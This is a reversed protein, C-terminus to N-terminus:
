DVWPLPTSPAAVRAPVPLPEISAVLALFTERATAVAKEDIGELRVSMAYPGQRFIAWDRWAIRSGSRVELAVLLGGPMALEHKRETVLGAEADHAVLTTVIAAAEQSTPVAPYVRIMTTGRPTMPAIWDTVLGRKIALWGKPAAYMVRRRRVGLGLTIGRAIARFAEVFADSEGRGELREHHHDGLIVAAARGPRLAMAGYEGEDTVLREIATAARAWRGLPPIGPVEGRHRIVGLLSRLEVAHGRFRRTWGPTASLM